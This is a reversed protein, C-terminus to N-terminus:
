ENLLRDMKATVDLVDGPQPARMHAIDDRVRKAAYCVDVALKMRPDGLVKFAEYRILGPIQNYEIDDIDTEIRQGGLTSRIAKGGSSKLHQELAGRLVGIVRSRREELWPLITRVCARWYRRKLWETADRQEPGAHRSIHLEHLAHRIRKGAIEAHCGASWRGSRWRADARAALAELSHPLALLADDPLAILEEALRADFGAFESVLMRLMGTGGPGSRDTMRVAVYAAMEQPNLAGSFIIENSARATPAAPSHLPEPLLALICLQNRDLNSHAIAESFRLLFQECDRVASDSRADLVITRIESRTTALQEPYAPSGGLAAGIETPISMGDGLKLWRTPENDLHARQLALEIATHLGAIPIAPVRLSVWRHAVILSAVADILERPGPMIWYLETSVTPIQPREGSVESDLLSSAEDRKM